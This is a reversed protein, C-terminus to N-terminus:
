DRLETQPCVNVGFHQSLGCLAAENASASLSLRIQQQAPLSRVCVVPGATQHGVRSALVVFVFAHFPGARRSRM